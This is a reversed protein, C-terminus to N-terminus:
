RFYRWLFVLGSCAIIVPAAEIFAGFNIGSIYSVPLTTGIYPLSFPLEIVPGM